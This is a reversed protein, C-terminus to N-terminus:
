GFFLSSNHRLRLENVTLTLQALHEPLVENGFYTSLGNWWGVDKGCEDYLWAVMKTEPASRYGDPYSEEDDYVIQYQSLGLEGLRSNPTKLGM